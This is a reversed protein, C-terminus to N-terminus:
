HTQKEILEKLREYQADKEKQISSKSLSMMGRLFINKAGGTSTERIITRSKEEASFKIDIDFATHKDELTFTFEKNPIYSKVTEEMVIKKKGWTYYVQYKTGSQPVANKPEKKVFQMQDNSLWDGLLDPNMVVEFAKEITADVEISTETSMKSNITGLVFLGLICFVIFLLFYKLLKM